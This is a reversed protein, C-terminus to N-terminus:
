SPITLHKLKIYDGYVFMHEACDVIFEVGKRELQNDILHQCENLLQSLKFRTKKLKICGAEIKSLDLVDNILEFLLTSAHNIEAISDRQEFSLAPDKQLLQSFGLIANLPTRLEHSMSSLFESKAQNAKEARNKALLLSHKNGLETTIDAICFAFGQMQQNTIIPSKRVRAPFTFGGNSKIALEIKVAKSCAANICALEESDNTIFPHFYRNLIASRDYGLLECAKKNAFLLKHETDTVYVGEDLSELIQEVQHKTHCLEQQNIKLKHEKQKLKTIDTRISM